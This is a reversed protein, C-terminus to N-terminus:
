PSGAPMMAQFVEEGIPQDLECGCFWGERSHLRSHVVRALTPGLLTRAARRLEILLMTGLDLERYQHLCIGGRSVDQVTATWFPDPGVAVLHCIADM